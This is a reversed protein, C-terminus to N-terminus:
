GPILHGPGWPTEQVVFAKGDAGTYPVVGRADEYPSWYFHIVREGSKGWWREWGNNVYYEHADQQKSSLHSEKWKEWGDPPCILGDITRKVQETTTQGDTQTTPDAQVPKIQESSHGNAGGQGGQSGQGGAGGQSGQAGAGAGVNSAGAGLREMLLLGRLLAIRAVVERTVEVGFEQAASGEGVVGVMADLRRLVTRELSLNVDERKSKKKAM